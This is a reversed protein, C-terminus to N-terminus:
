GGADAVFRRNDVPKFRALFAGRPPARLAARWRGLADDQGVVGGSGVGGVSQGALARGQEPAAVKVVGPLQQLRQRAAGVLHGRALAFLGGRCHRDGVGKVLVPQGLRLSRAHQAHQQQGEIRVVANRQAAGGIDLLGAGFRPTRRVGGRACRDGRQAFQQAHGARMFPTADAHFNGRETLGGVVANVGVIAHERRHAAFVDPEDGRRVQGLRRRPLAFQDREVDAGAGPHQGGNQHAATHALDHRGILVRAREVAGPLVQRTQAHTRRHM